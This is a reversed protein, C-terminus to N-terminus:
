QKKGRSVPALFYLSGILSCGELKQLTALFLTCISASHKCYVGCLSDSLKYRPWLFRKPNVTVPEEFIDSANSTSRQIFLIQAAFNARCFGYCDNTLKKDPM